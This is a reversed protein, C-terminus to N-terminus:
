KVFEENIIEMYEALIEGLRESEKDSLQHYRDFIAAYEAELEEKRNM